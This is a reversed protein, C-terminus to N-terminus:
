GDGSEVLRLELQEQLQAIKARIADAQVVNRRGLPEVGEEKACREYLRDFEAGHAAILLCTAKYRARNAARVLAKHAAPDSRPM